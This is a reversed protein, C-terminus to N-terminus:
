ATKLRGFFFAIREKLNNVELAREESVHAPLNMMSARITKLKKIDLGIHVTGFGFIDEVNYNEITEKNHNRLSRSPYHWYASNTYLPFKLEVLVALVEIRKIKINYKNEFLIKLTHYFYSFDNKDSKRTAKPRKQVFQALFDTLLNQTRSDTFIKDSQM